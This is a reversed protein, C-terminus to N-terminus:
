SSRILGGLSQAKAIARQHYEADTLVGEPERAPRRSLDADSLTKPAEHAASPPTQTSSASQRSKAVRDLREYESSLQTELQRAVTQVSPWEGANMYPIYISCLARYTGARDEKAEAALFPYESTPVEGTFDAISKDAMERRIQFEVPPEKATEPEPKALKQKIGELEMDLELQKLAFKTQPDADDGLSHGLLLTAVQSVRDVPVGTDRCFKIPNRIFSDRLEAKAKEVEAAVQKTVGEKETALSAKQAALEAEQRALAALRKSAMTDEAKVPEPTKEAPPPAAAKVPEPTPAPTPTVPAPAAEPDTMLQGAFKAIIAAPDFGPLDAGAADAAGEVVSIDTSM